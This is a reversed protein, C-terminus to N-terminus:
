SSVLFHLLISLLGFAFASLNDSLDLNLVQAVYYNLGSKIGGDLISERLIDIDQFCQTLVVPPIVRGNRCVEVTMWKPWGPQKNSDMWESTRGPLAMYIRWLAPDNPYLLQIFSDVQLSYVEVSL